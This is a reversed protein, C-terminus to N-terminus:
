ATFLRLRIRTFYLPFTSMFQFDMTVANTFHKLTPADLAVTAALESVDVCTIAPSIAARAVIQDVSDAERLYPLPLLDAHLGAVNLSTKTAPRKTDAKEHSM